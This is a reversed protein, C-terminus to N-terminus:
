SATHFDVVTQREMSSNCSLPVKVIRPFCTLRSQEACIDIQKTRGYGVVGEYYRNARWVLIKPLLSACCIHPRVLPPDPRPHHRPLSLEVLSELLLDTRIARKLM